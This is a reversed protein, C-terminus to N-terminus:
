EQRCRSHDDPLEEAMKGIVVLTDPLDVLRREQYARITLFRHTRSALDWADHTVIPSGIVCTHTAGFLSSATSGPQGTDEYEHREADGDDDRGVGTSAATLDRGRPGTRYHCGRSGEASRM